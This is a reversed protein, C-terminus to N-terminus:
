YDSIIQGKSRRFPQRTNHNMSLNKIDLRGQVVKMHVFKCFCTRMCSYGRQQAVTQFHSICAHVSFACLPVRALATPSVTTACGGSQLGRQDTPTHLSEQQCPFM